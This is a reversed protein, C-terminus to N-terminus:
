DGTGTAPLPIVALPPLPGRGVEFKALILGWLSIIMIHAQVAAATPLDTLAMMLGSAAM